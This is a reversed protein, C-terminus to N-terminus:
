LLIMPKLGIRSSGISAQDGAELVQIVGATAPLAVRIPVQAFCLTATGSPVVYKVPTSLVFGQHFTLPSHNPSCESCYTTPALTEFFTPILIPSSNFTPAPAWRCQIVKLTTPRSEDPPTSSSATRTGSEM